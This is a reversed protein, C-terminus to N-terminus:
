LVDAFSGRLRQFFFAGFLYAAIGFAYLYALHTFNIPHGWFTSLINPGPNPTQTSDLDQSPSGARAMTM